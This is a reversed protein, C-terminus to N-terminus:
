RKRWYYFKKLKEIVIDKLTVNVFKSCHDQLSENQINNFFQERKGNWPVSNNVMIGDLEIAKKYDAPYYIYNDKIDKFIQKGKASQIILNTWGKDDDKIDALEGAHWADYVTFDSCHEEHKFACNYCHPKSCLDGFFAKLYYNSRASEYIKKGNAFEILMTGSHYGYTKNRIRIFKIKSNHKNEQYELHKKWFLPSPTGRCIVDMTILNKYDKRLYSKLGAVQCPTGTFFVYVGSDLQSKIKKFSDEVDSAVYKSGRLKSIDDIKDICIHHVRFQSDFEAGYVRGLKNLTYEALSTFFGGSTSDSVVNKRKDRIVYGEIQYKNSFCIESHAVPCVKECLGCNICKTEDAQPYKFGEKDTMMTICNIPCVSACATCNCCKRKDTVEIM